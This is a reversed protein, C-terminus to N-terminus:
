LADLKDKIEGQTIKGSFYDEETTDILGLLKDQFEKDIIRDKAFHKLDEFNPVLDLFEQHLPSRKWVGIKKAMPIGKFVLISQGIIDKQYYAMDQKEILKEQSILKDDEEQLNGIFGVLIYALVAGIAIFIILGPNM